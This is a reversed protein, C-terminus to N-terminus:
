SEGEMHRDVLSDRGSKLAKWDSKENKTSYCHAPWYKLGKGMLTFEHNEHGLDVFQVDPPSTASILYGKRSFGKPWPFGMEKAAEANMGGYDRLIKSTVFKVPHKHDELWYVRKLLMREARSKIHKKEKRM